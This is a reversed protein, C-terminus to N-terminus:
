VQTGAPGHSPVVSLVSVQASPHRTIGTLNGAEDYAYAATDSAPDTVGVLRGAEDYAYRIPEVGASAAAPRPPPVALGLTTLAITLLLVLSTRARAGLRQM